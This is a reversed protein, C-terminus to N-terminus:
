LRYGIKIASGPARSRSGSRLRSPIRRRSYRRRGALGRRSYRRTRKRYAM